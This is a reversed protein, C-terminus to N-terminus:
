RYVDEYLKRFWLYETKAEELLADDLVISKEESLTEYQGMIIECMIKVRIKDQPSIHQQSGIKAIKQQNERAEDIFHVYRLSVKSHQMVTIAMKNYSDLHFSETALELAREYDGTYYHYKAEVSKQYSDSFIFFLGAGVLLLIPILSLFLKNM